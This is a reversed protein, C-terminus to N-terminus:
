GGGGRVLPVFTVPLMQRTRVRGDPLKEVLVLHQLAFGGGVPIVMRGGPRLQGLLPPPISGAAATVLIGDFPAAEPVGYYGDGRHVTVNAYGLARLRREAAEALPAIIEITHVAQILGALVAAQYGSGAGVELV